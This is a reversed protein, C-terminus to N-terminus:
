CAHFVHSGDQVRRNLELWAPTAGTCDGERVCVKLIMAPSVLAAKKLLTGKKFRQPLISPPVYEPTWDRSAQSKALALAAERCALGACCGVVRALLRTSALRCAASHHQLVSSSHAFM